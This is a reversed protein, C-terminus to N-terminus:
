NNKLWEYIKPDFKQNKIGKEGIVIAKYGLSKYEKVDNENNFGYLAMTFSTQSDGQVIIKFNKDVNEKDVAKLIKGTLSNISQGHEM